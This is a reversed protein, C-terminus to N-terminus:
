SSADPVPSSRGHRDRLCEGQEHLFRRVVGCRPHLSRLRERGARQIRSVPKSTCSSRYRRFSSSYVMNTQTFGTQFAGIRLACSAAVVPEDRAAGDSDSIVLDPRVSRPSTSVACPRDPGANAVSVSECRHILRVSSFRYRLEDRPMTLRGSGSQHRVRVGHANRRDIRVSRRARPVDIELFYTGVTENETRAKRRGLRVM